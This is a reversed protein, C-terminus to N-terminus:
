NTLSAPQVSPDVAIKASTAASAEASALTATAIASHRYSHPWARRGNVADVFTNIEEFYTNELVDSSSGCEIVIADENERGNILLRGSVLDFDMAGSEGVCMGRRVVPFAGQLVTLAGIGSPDLSLQLSWSDEYVSDLNGFRGLMGNVFKPAGFVHNLWVLEFPVMERGAATNRNRAYFENGEEPHWGPMYTSLMMQYSHLSGIMGEDILAKMKRVIPLFHFSCSPACVLGKEKSAREIVDPDYTWINEECFHHIGLDLALEVYEDHHDPPTSIVLAEPSWKFALNKEAFAPIGFREVAKARRDERFDLLALEVDERAVLDRMRRTGMSGAGIQLIRM